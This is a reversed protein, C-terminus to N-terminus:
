CAFIRNKGDRKATYLADDAAKLWETASTMERTAFAIGISLSCHYPIGHDAQLLAAQEMIVHGIATAEEVSTNPLLVVFEDGGLRAPTDQQRTYRRLIEAVAALMSDGVKHGYHDNVDKFDDIDIFMLASLRHRQHIKNLEHHIRPELLRRNAIDLLPDMMAIRGLEDSKQRLKIAISDTLASVALVYIAILPLTAYATRQSIEPEFPMGRAIWCALFGIILAGAAKRLLEVGGAALRDSLLIAAITVSPLPNASMMAIWFGGAAADLVLSRHEVILPQRARRALLFAVSPWIFANVSLLILWGHSHHQESLVSFIPIFCLFTGLMRMFYMRRIFKLGAVGDRNNIYESLPM